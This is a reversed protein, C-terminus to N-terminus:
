CGCSFRAARKDKPIARGTVIEVHDWFEPPIEGHADQGNFHLYEGPDWQDKSGIEGIATAIVAEYSPCDAGNIFERLWRESEAKGTLPPEAAAAFAPHTWQHRLSTITQPYLFMWCREGKLVRTTLFPDVIGLAPKNQFGRAGEAIPAITETSGEVFGVHQGPYLTEAAIVPAVAIHVADRQATADLLVGLKTVDSM